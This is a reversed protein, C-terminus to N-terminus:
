YIGGERQLFDSDRPAAPAATAAATPGAAPGARRAARRPETEPKFAEWIVAPKPDSDTPFTGFVPKGSGRDIRVMRIGPPARFPLVPLDKFAKVAFSKFIPAAFTGGQVAGGLNRPTDFGIYLGGIM